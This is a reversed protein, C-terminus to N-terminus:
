LLRGIGVRSGRVWGWLTPIAGLICMLIVTDGRGLFVEMRRYVQSLSGQLVRM